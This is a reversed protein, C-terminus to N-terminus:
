KLAMRKVRLRLTGAVARDTSQSNICYSRSSRPARPPFVTVEADGFLRMSSIEDNMDKGLTPINEGSRACFSDGRFDPDKYFCVGDRPFSPHGWQQARLSSSATLMTMSAFLVIKRFHM